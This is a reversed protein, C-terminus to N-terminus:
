KEKAQSGLQLTHWGPTLTLEQQHRQGARDRWSLKVRVPGTVNAGLGIHVAHARKGSHGSGGDVRGMFSRGDPTTATVTAGIVPSGAAPLPGAASPTDHLLRLGLFSGASRSTNLYFAPAEWQRAVAFDILGDGNVDGTAIGRTPVPVALGLQESLNAYRGDPGKAFFALTQAGAIDGGETVNPWSKPNSTVGDNAAALEQLPPWRNVDGKVFGTAQVIENEGDNDFDEIKPDWGWGSWATRLEASLDKWPAEGQRLKERLEAQTKVTSLFTFNSEQIGYPTTINSVFFDLVGDHNLDGADSGMGKFSDEGLVKSKPVGIEHSGVTASFKITGPSSTNYLLHDPGFDNNLLLEPLGDGDLDASTAGLEWGTSVDPPLVGDLRTFGGNGTGRFFYDRGGNVAKSLSHNMQVGGDVRSDLVPSGDPFYNGVFIDQKGDGDFDAVTAVNSNWVEGAYKAGGPNPVLEAADFAAAEFRTAAPRQLHLTPTRGWWYVLLDTRGDDNYDAPVAGMPAMADTVPLSGLSLAFPRYREGGGEVPAPTVVVQDTRPDVIVLDDDRGNGDLDNLAIAAGVSSIWADIHKYAQNVKRVTKASGGGPMAIALSKFGYAGAMEAKTADSAFTPHGIAFVAIMLALAAVGAAQKRLWAAVSSM